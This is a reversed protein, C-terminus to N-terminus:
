IGDQNHPGIAKGYAELLTEAARGWNYYEEARKRARAGLETRLREDGLLKLIGGALSAPSGAETLIACDGVMARVDGVDSAVIPRGAALYEVIKLPSKCRTVDNDEFPAVAIDASAIYAPVKDHEVAGTFIVREEIDLDKALVKLKGLGAGDGVIMFHLMEGKRELVIKASRLFLDAYQAGHLQGLYLATRGKLGFKRKIWDPNVTPNFSEPDAGVPVDFIREEEVGLGICLRRLKQSSVSVTDAIRPLATELTHLFTRVAASPPRVMDCYIKEEWDDWDYHVPKDNALAGFVAPIACYHFCKQFHVVDAWRALRSIAIGHKVLSSPGGRRPLPVFEVGDRSFPAQCHGADKLFYVLRVEHLRKTFEGALSTIRRTWPEEKSFVDHPHLLLIKM